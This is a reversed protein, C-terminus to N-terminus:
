YYGKTSYSIRTYILNVRSVGTENAVKQASTQRADLAVVSTEKEESTLRMGNRKFKRPESTMEM